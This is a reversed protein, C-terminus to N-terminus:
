LASSLNELTSIFNQLALKFEEKEDNTVYKKSESEISDHANAFLENLARFQLINQEIDTTAQEEQTPLTNKLKSNILIYKM